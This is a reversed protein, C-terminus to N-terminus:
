RVIDIIKEWKNQWKYDNLAKRRGYYGIQIAETSNNLYYKIKNVLEDKNEYFIIERNENFYNSLEDNYTTIYAAGTMPVEFDRGKLATKKTDGIYGIGLVLLSNSFINVMEEQSVSGENWGLGRVYVSIGKKYLYEIIEQRKGYKQGIFSIKIDRKLKFGEKAFLKENGGSSMFLPNAGAYIYKGVNKKSQATICIDYVPAINVSGTFCGKEKYGWFKLSDDFDYNITIIGLDRIRKITEPFVWRGSLYSFFLDIKNRKNAQYVKDYLEQNFLNKEKEYWTNSYQDYKNGWDYHIINAVNKWSDVLADKEWNCQKVAIFVTPKLALSNTIEGRLRRIELYNKIKRIQQEENIYYDNITKESLLQIPKNRFNFFEYYSERISM